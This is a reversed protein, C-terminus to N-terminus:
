AQEADEELANEQSSIAEDSSETSPLSAASSGQQVQAQAEAKAWAKWREFEENELQMGIELRSPGFVAGTAEAEEVAVRRQIDERLRLRYFERRAIDYATGKTM